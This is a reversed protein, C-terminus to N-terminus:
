EGETQRALWDLPKVDKYLRANKGSRPDDSPGLKIEVRCLSTDSFKEVQHGLVTHRVWAKESALHALVETGIEPLDHGDWIRQMGM